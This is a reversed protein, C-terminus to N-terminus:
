NCYATNKSLGNAYKDACYDNYSGKIYGYQCGGWSGTGKDNKCYEWRTNWYVLHDWRTDCLQGSKRADPHDNCVKNFKICAYDDEFNFSKDITKTWGCDDRKACDSESLGGGHVSGECYEFDVIEGVAKEKAAEEEAAEGSVAEKFAAGPSFAPVNTAPIEIVQGTQPNRGERAPRERRDFAGFGEIVVQDGEVVADIITEVIAQLSNRAQEITIDAKSAISDALQNRNMGVDQEGSVAEKFAAGPSFVPVKTAPIVILEGTKPNRGERAKRERSEFSGFGEIVVEDGEVVAGIITEVTAQLANRAQEITIDAKSAISDAL